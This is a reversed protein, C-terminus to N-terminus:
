AINEDQDWAEGAKVKDTTPKLTDKPVPCLTTGDFHGWKQNAEMAEQFCMSFIVWNSGNTELCPVSTPLPDSITIAAAMSQSGM